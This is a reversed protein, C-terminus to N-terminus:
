FLNFCIIMLMSVQKRNTKQSVHALMQHETRLTECQIQLDRNQQKMLGFEHENQSNTNTLQLLRSRYDQIELKITQNENMLQENFEKLQEENTKHNAVETSHQKIISTLMNTQLLLAQYKNSIDHHAAEMQKNHTIVHKVRDFLQQDVFLHANDLEERILDILKKFNETSSVKEAVIGSM